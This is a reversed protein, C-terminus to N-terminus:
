LAAHSRHESWLMQLDNADHGLWEAIEELDFVAYRGMATKPLPAGKSKLMRASHDKGWGTALQIVELAVERRIRKM